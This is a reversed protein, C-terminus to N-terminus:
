WRFQCPTREDLRGFTYGNEKITEIIKVLSKATVKNTQGDHLLVVPLHYRTLDKKINRLISYSTPTGVSDEGSVNWDYYVFGRREMESIIDRRIWKASSNYSGGPFRYIFPRQGTIEEIISFVKEYDSLFADVSSYITRYDHCYTHLAIMHGQDAVEKLIEQNRENLMIEEGIVFFIAKIDYEKLIDLVMLTNDSPGDDFSLYCIKQDEEVSEWETRPIAYLNPYRNAYDPKKPDVDESMTGQNAAIQNELTVFVQLEEDSNIAELDITLKSEEPITFLRAVLMLLVVFMVLIMHREKM